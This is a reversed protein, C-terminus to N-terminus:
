QDLPILLKSMYASIIFSLSSILVHWNERLHLYKLAQPQKVSWRGDQRPRYHTRTSPGAMHIDSVPHANAWLYAQQVQFVVDYVIVSVRVDCSCASCGTFSQIWGLANRLLPISKSGLSATAIKTVFSLFTHCSYLQINNSAGPTTKKEWLKAKKILPDSM